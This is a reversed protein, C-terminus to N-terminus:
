AAIPLRVTANLGGGPDNVLCVSGGHARVLTQVISLGLGIGGTARNRSQEERFFPEFARQLGTPSMGPGDDSVTVVACGSEVRLMIKAREGYKVANGVLNAFLRELLVADGKVVLHPAIDGIQVDHGLDRWDDVMRQLVAGLDVKTFDPKSTQSQVFDMTVAIMGEMGAIEAAFRDRTEDDLRAALFHMRALPTRLDHAIAGVVATRERILAEIRQQMDNIAVAAQRIESPGALPMHEYDGRGVRDASRAFARIPRALVRSVIWAIPVIVIVAIGILKLIGIQWIPGPSMGGTSVVRWRGDPLRLAADFPGIIMAGFRPHNGFIRESEVINREYNNNIAASPLVSNRSMALRLRAPDVSLSRAITRKITMEVPTQGDAFGPANRMTISQPVVSIGAIPRDELLRSVELTSIPLQIPVPTFLIMAAIALATALAGGIALLLSYTFISRNV